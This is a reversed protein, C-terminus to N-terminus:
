VQVAGSCATIVNKQWPQPPCCKRSIPTIGPASTLSTCDGFMWSYCGETLTTAPLVLAKSPHSRLNKQDYFMEYFNYNGTLTKASVFDKSSVLSMINGYVYFPATGGIVDYVEEEGSEKRRVNHKLGPAALSEDYHFYVANDGYFAVKDGAKVTIEVLTEGAITQKAGGNVTYSVPGEVKNNFHVTGAEIAEVTLPTSLMADDARACVAVVILCFLTFLKKM